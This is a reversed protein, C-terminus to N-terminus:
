QDNTQFGVRIVIEDSPVLPVAIANSEDISLLTLWSVNM